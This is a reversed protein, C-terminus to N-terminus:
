FDILVHERVVDMTTQAEKRAKASGEKLVDLIYDDKGELRERGERYEGFHDYVVKAAERKCDVCGISGEQCAKLIEVDREDETNFARHLDYVTCVSPDGKDTRRIRKPDTIMKSVDATITELNDSPLIVNGFSKSMKRGDTGVIRPTNTYLSQPEPFVDGFTRNFSRCLERTLELHPDQDDGVPVGDARYIMIDAAMLVPYGLFGYSVQGKAKKLEVDTTEHDEDLIGLLNNVYGKFTPLRELRSLNPLMSLMLHLEAHQPVESQVFMVSKEPDIGAALWDRVMETTDKKIAKTDLTTTLAHWNAVFYYSDFEEQFKVWNDLAGVFHGIHLRGTPRMGSLIRSVM